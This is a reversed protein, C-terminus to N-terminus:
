HGKIAPPALRYAIEFECKERYCHTHFKDCKHWLEDVRKQYQQFDVFREVTLKEACDKIWKAEM